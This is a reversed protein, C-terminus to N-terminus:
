APLLREMEVIEDRQSDAVSRAFRRVEATGAHDAAHEAMHIGGQHHATMLQVFVQDAEAGRAVRLADIDAQTVLGPMRELPVPDGMWAMALDTENIESAGFGRLLQIMRGIELQQGVIISRAVTALDPDADEKDLYIFSMQVAQEHHFRMDQLFGIDTANADPLARNNGIVWGLGGALVVLAVGLVILNLPSQWWPLVADPEVGTDAAHADAGGAPADAGGAATDAHREPSPSPDPAHTVTELM